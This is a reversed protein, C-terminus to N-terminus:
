ELQGTTFRAKGGALETVRFPIYAPWWHRGRYIRIRFDGTTLGDLVYDITLKIEDFANTTVTEDLGMRFMGGRRNLTGSSQHIFSSDLRDIEIAQCRALRLSAVPANWPIWAPLLPLRRRVIAAEIMQGSWPEDASLRVAVRGSLPIVLTSSNPYEDFTWMLTELALKEPARLRFFRLRRVHQRVTDFALVVGAWVVLGILTAVVSGILTAPNLLDVQM